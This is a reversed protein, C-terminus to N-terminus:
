YEQTAHRLLMECVAVHPPRTVAYAVADAVDSPDLTSGKPYKERFAAKSEEHTSHAFIGTEVVGPEIVIVRVDPLLEQRIAESWGNVAWKTANYVSATPRSKRGGVSSINVLDGTDAEKLQPLFVETALMTGFINVDIQLKTEAVPADSFPTFMALGAANVLIDAGGWQERVREAARVMEPEDTVDVAIGMAESGNTSLSDVASELRDRGRALMAMKAGQGSLQAAIAQGIGSSAGTVVAVRGDLVREKAGAQVINGKRGEVHKASVATVKPM